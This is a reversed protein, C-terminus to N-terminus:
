PAKWIVKCNEDILALTPGEKIAMLSVRPKGNEDYLGMVPGDKGVSLV